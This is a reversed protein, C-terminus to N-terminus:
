CCKECGNQAADFLDKSCDCSADASEEPFRSLYEACDQHNREAALSQATVGSSNRMGKELPALVEVCKLHGRCAAAMLATLGSGDRMGAEKEALAKVCETKGCHAAVMLATRQGADDCGSM